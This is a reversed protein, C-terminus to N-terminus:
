KIVRPGMAEHLRDTICWRFLRGSQRNFHDLIAPGDKIETREETYFDSDIVYCLEGNQKGHALGHRIRVHSEKNLTITVDKMVREIEGAIEPASLEGAVHPRLLASWEVGKLNLASRRIVDRYRLGVRTYFAPSYHEIIAALPRELHAKFDEWREYKRCTLAIFDRTIGVRWVQDASIFEYAKPGIPLPFDSGVVKLLESPLELPNAAKEEFLPYQNRIAEQYAAPTESGIRLIPPFRLQCIVQELPNNRYIVRPSEPFAM